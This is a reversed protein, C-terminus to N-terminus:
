ECESVNVRDFSVRFDVRILIFFSFAVNFRLGDNM